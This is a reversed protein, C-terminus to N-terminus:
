SEKKKQTKIVAKFITKDQVKGEVYYYNKIKKKYIKIMDNEYSENVFYIEYEKINLCKREEVSFADLVFYNYRLNNTHNNIDIDTSLIKRSYVFNPEDVIERINSFTNNLNNTKEMNLDPYEISNMKRIKRTDCDLCCWESTGNAIIKNGCKFVCDRTARIGGLEHTWTTVNIKDQSVIDKKLCLKMKTVIWFANSKKIMSEHDLGMINSHNFTAVQFMKMIEHLPVKNSFDVNTDNITFKENHWNKM